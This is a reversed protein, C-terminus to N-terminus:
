PVKQLRGVTVNKVNIHKKNTIESNSIVGLRLASTSAPTGSSLCLHAKHLFYTHQPKGPPKSLLSDVQLAPSRPQSSGRSSLM